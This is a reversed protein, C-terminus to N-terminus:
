ADQAVLHCRSQDFDIFLETGAIPPTDYDARESILQVGDKEAVVRHTAGLRSVLSARAPESQHMATPQMEFRIDEARVYAGLRDICSLEPPLGLVAQFGKGWSLQAQGDASKSIDGPLRNVSGVFEVVFSTKPHTYIEEPPGIQVIRGDHMIAIRDAMAFAERQDHTVLITTIGLSRLLLSLEVHMAERLNKDLASLAEDLLLVDPEIAIARAIAVRQQQGGSLETPYRADFGDLKLLALCRAVRERINEKAMGRARLGYAVNDFVTMHPFLAYQQFVMAVNRKNPPRYTVVDDALAVDGEEPIVFGAVINLLTSKGCGSPGLLAVVEGRKVRLSCDELVRTEGFSKSVRFIELNVPAKEHAQIAAGNM